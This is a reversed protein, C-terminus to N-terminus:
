TTLQVSVQGTLANSGSSNCSFQILDGASVAVSDTTNSFTGIAANPRTVVLSTAVQNVLLTITNPGSAIASSPNIYVYMNNLTGSVPMPFQSQVQNSSPNQSYPIFYNTAANTGILTLGSTAIISNTGAGSVTMFQPAAGAGQSTFLQASTGVTTTNFKTGDYYIVGNANTLSSTNTGGESLPLPSQRKYAM